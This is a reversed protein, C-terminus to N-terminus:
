FPSVYNADPLVAAPAVRPAPAVGLPAVVPRPPLPAVPAVVLPAAVPPAVVAPAVVAPPVVAPPVVAPAVVAPAVVVPVPEPAPAPAVASEGGANAHQDDYETMRRLLDTTIDRLRATKEANLVGERGGNKRIYESVMQAVIAREFPTRGALLAQNTDDVMRDLSLAVDNLTACPTGAVMLPRDFTNPLESHRMM